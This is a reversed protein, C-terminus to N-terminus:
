LDVIVKVKKRAFNSLLNAKEKSAKEAIKDAEETDDDKKKDNDEDKKKDKSDDKKKEDKKKEDTKKDDKKEEKKEKPYIVEGMNRDEDAEALSNLREQRAEKQAELAKKTAKQAEKM